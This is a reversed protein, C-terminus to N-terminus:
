YIGTLKDQDIVKYSAWSSCNKCAEFAVYRAKKAQNQLARTKASAWIEKITSVNADGTILDSKELNWPVCCATTKGNWSVMVRQMPYKCNKRGMIKMNALKYSSSKATREFVPAFRVEVDKPFYGKFHNVEDQNQKTVTMNIKIKPHGHDKYHLYAAEFNQILRGFSLNRRIQEYKKRDLSDISFIVKDLKHISGRKRLPYNGHTNIMVEIFDKDMVYDILEGFRPHLTAEGRWNLKLSLTRGEIEDVIKKFLVPSMYGTPFISNKPSSENNPTIPCFACRSDCASSLELDVHIPHLTELKGEGAKDWFNRYIKYAVADHKKKM